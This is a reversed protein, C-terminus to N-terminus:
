AGEKQAEVACVESCVGRGNVGTVAEAKGCVDCPPGPPEPQPQHRNSFCDYCEGWDPDGGSKWINQGCACEASTWGPQLWWLTM